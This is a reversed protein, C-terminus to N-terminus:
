YLESGNEAIFAKLKARREARKTNSSHLNGKQDRMEVVRFPKESQVGTTM